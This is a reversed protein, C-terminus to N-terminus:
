NDSTDGGAAVGSTVRHEDRLAHLQERTLTENDLLAAAVADLLQSQEELLQRAADHAAACLDRVAADVRDAAAGTLQEPERRAEGVDAPGMGWHCVMQLARRTAMQIDGEAGHTYDGDLLREEAARGAYLVTLDALLRSRTLYHKEDDAFWNAGGTGGRPVITVREPDATNALTLAATAHGAEHWAVIRQEDITLIVGRREPGLAVRELGDNCMDATIVSSGVRGAMIAAENVVNAIDAGTMGASRGALQGAVIDRDLDPHLAVGRLYMNFLHRRGQRSPAPVTIRRDFRGPRTLAADLLEPRNTAALVVIEGTHFGDMETLLQNLTAEREDTAGSAPGSSRQKGAADIEDIFIIAKGHKRAQAFLDRVKRAGLGAFVEVFDSGSTVFFPVGAEGAAARALLTKGTGPPGVLLVGKPVKAGIKRYKDPARLYDVVEQLETVAEDVGAVDSFRTDPIDVPGKTSSLRSMIGGGGAVKRIILGFFALFLLLPILQLLLSQWLPQSSDDDPTVEVRIGAAAAANLVRETGGTPLASELPEITDDDFTVTVTNDKNSVTVLTVTDDTRIATVIDSFATIDDPEDTSNDRGVVLAFIGVALLVAGALGAIRAATTNKRRPAPSPSPSTVRLSRETDARERV